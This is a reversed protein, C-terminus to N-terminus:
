FSKFKNRSKGIINFIQPLMNNDNHVVIPHGYSHAAAHLEPYGLWAKPKMIDILYHSFNKDYVVDRSRPAKKDWYQEYAQRHKRMYLSVRSRVETISTKKGTRYAIADRIAYPACNGGGANPKVTFGNPIM